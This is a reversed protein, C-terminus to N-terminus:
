ANEGFFAMKSTQYTESCRQAKLGDNLFQDEPFSDNLKRESTSPINM